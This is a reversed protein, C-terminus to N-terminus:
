RYHYDLRARAGCIGHNRIVIINVSQAFYCEDDTFHGNYILKQHYYVAIVIILHIMLFLIDCTDKTNSFVSFYTSRSKYMYINKIYTDQFIYFLTDQTDPSRTNVDFVSFRCANIVKSWIKLGKRSLFYLENANRPRVPISMSAIISRQM